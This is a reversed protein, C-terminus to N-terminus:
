IFLLNPDSVIGGGGEAKAQGLMPAPSDNEKLTTGLVGAGTGVADNQKHQAAMLAAAIEANPAPTLLGDSITM